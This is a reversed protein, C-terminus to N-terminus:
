RVRVLVVEGGEHGFEFMRQQALGERVSWKLGCSRVQKEQAKGKEDM